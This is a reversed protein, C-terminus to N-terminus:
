GWDAVSCKRISLSGGVGHKVSERFWWGPPASSISCLLLLQLATALSFLSCWQLPQSHQDSSPCFTFGAMWKTLFCQYSSVSPWACPVLASAPFNSPLGLPPLYSTGCCHYPYCWPPSFYVSLIAASGTSIGFTAELSVSGSGVNTMNIICFIVLSGLTM